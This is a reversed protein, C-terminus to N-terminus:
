KNSKVFLPVWEIQMYYFDFDSILKFHTKETTKKGMRTFRDNTWITDHYM